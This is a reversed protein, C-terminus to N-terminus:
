RVVPTQEASGRPAYIATSGHLSLLAVLKVPGLLRTFTGALHVEDIVYTVAVYKV